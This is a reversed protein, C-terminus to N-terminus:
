RGLVRASAGAGYKADFAGRLNPNQRLANIAGAPPQGGAMSPRQPIAQTPHMGGVLAQAVPSLFTSFAPAHPGATTEYQHQLGRLQGGMLAQMKQIYGKLQAPSSASNIGAQVDLISKDTVHGAGIFKAVEQSVVGKVASFDTPAESGTQQAFYNGVKNFLPANGNALADAAQQLTGLHDMAVSATRIVNGNNGGIFSDLAKSQAHVLQSHAIAGEIGGYSAVKQAIRNAIAAQAQKNRSYGPPPAGNFKQLGLDAAADIANSSLGGVTGSSPDGGGLNAPTIDQVGSAMGASAGGGQGMSRQVSQVHIHTGENLVKMGPMAQQLRTAMETMSMGPPPVFDRADDTLHYSNPVGGVAANHDVSRARSTVTLGPITAKATSEIQVGAPSGTTTTPAWDGGVQLVHDGNAPNYHVFKSAEPDRYDLQWHGNEDYHGIARGVVQGKTTGDPAQDGVAKLTKAFEDGGPISSLMVGAMAAAHKPDKDLASLMADVMPESRGAQQDATQRQQLLTKAQDSYGGNLLSWVSALHQRDADQTAQDRATFADSITKAQDPFRAKLGLIKDPSPNALTDTLAAQYAANQQQAQQQQAQANQMNWQQNQTNTQTAALNAQDQQGQMYNGVPDPLVKMVSLFDDAM